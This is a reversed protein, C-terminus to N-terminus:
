RRTESRRLVQGPHAGTIRNNELVPTGNVLVDPIGVPPSEPKATTATDIVRKPDFVVIDAKMGPKLLGRDRFGMRAAPLSTMKRIAEPLTLVRQERVYRGLVRPYSGAGRPHTFHIGGDTCFMVLPSRMFTRLDDERMATVVVSESGKKGAGHTQEVIEQIIAVPDRGAKRAIEQITKGAWAPSPSYSSLLVHEPGGIDALGKQWAAKDSWDRTPILVTITSQWYLYPYIDATIDLGEKRADAMMSLVQGAKGWVSASGLKIHSIQAPIRGRRAISILEQISQISHNDENRMHSIYIGGPAAVPKACEAVEDTTAYYGPDYELGTSLGLAGSDMEQTVLPAMKAVEDPRAARKFDDGMVKGRVTGHGVFSAINLAVHKAEVQRFWDALPYHSGGDQGVVSTTIGQRIQSEADPNELLGGDAHSHTDIFGPAVVMGRANIVHEGLRASLKGIETIRDGQIRIDGGFQASGSGDVVTGGQILVGALGAAQRATIRASCCAFSVFLAVVMAVAALRARRSPM